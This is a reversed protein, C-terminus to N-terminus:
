LYCPLVTGWVPSNVCSTPPIYIIEKQHTSKKYNERNHCIVTAMPIFNGKLLHERPM